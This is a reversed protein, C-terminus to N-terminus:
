MPTSGEVTRSTLPANMEAIMRDAVVAASTGGELLERIRFLMDRVIRLGDHGHKRVFEIYLCAEIFNYVGADIFTDVISEDKVAEGGARFVNKARVEKDILRVWCSLFAPIGLQEAERFNAWVDEGEIAKEGAYDHNKALFTEKAHDIMWMFLMSGSLDNPIQRAM